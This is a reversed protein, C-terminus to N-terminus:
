RPAESPYVLATAGQIEIVDVSEGPEIVVDDVYARASWTEGALKVRGGNADVRELVLARGGVLAAVGTRTAAPQQLHRLAVPRVVGLLAATAALAVLAAVLFPAGVLAAVAGALAGGALMLFLLDLTMTEVTGLVLALGLWLAWSNDGIWEVM